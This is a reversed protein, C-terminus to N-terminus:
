YIVIKKAESRWQESDIHYLYTGSSLQQSPVTLNGTTETVPFSMIKQGNLGFLELTGSHIGEPLQVPIHVQRSAPNPFPNDLRMTSITYESSKTASESLSYVHTYTRYPIVSFNYEYVLFKKGDDPTEIIETYGAGPITLLVTGNENILKTEYTYYYSTETPVYKTYSYVLEVLNDDNFLKESVYQVDSLYYGQLTPIPISKYLSHDMKYIHCQKNMVDMSYYVEGISELRTITASESYINELVPQSFLALGIILLAITLAHKKM